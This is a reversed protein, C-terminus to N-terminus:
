AVLANYLLALKSENRKLFSGLTVIVHQLSFFGIHLEKKNNGKKLGSRANLPPIKSHNQKTYAQLAHETLHKVAAFALYYSSFIGIWHKSTVEKM